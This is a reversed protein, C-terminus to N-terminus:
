APLIMHSRFGGNQNYSPGHWHWFIIGEWLLANWTNSNGRGFLNHGGNSISGQGNWRYNWRVLQVTYAGNRHEGAIGPTDKKVEGTNTGIVRRKLLDLPDYHQKLSTLKVIGSGSSHLRYKALTSIPKNGYVQPTYFNGNIELHGGPSLNTNGLLITFEDYPSIFYDLGNFGSKKQIGNHWGLDFWDVPLGVSVDYEHEHKNTTRSMLKSATSEDVDIHGYLLGSSQGSDYYPFSNDKCCDTKTCGSAPCNTRAWSDVLSWGSYANCINSPCSLKCCQDTDCGDSSCGQDAALAYGSPCTFESCHTPCKRTTLTM